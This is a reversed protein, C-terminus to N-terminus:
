AAAPETKSRAPMSGFGRKRLLARYRRESWSKLSLVSAGDQSQLRWPVRQREPNSAAESLFMPGRRFVQRLVSVLEQRLEAEFVMSNAAACGQLPSSAQPTLPFLEARANCAILRMAQSMPASGGYRVLVAALSWVGLPHRRLLQIRQREIDECADLIAQETCGSLRAHLSLFSALTRWAFAHLLDPVEQKDIEVACRQGSWASGDVFADAGHWWAVHALVPAEQHLRRHLFNATGQGARATSSLSLMTAAMVNRLTSAPALAYGPVGLWTGCRACGFPVKRASEFDVAIHRGCVQCTDVLPEDHVPCRSLALHQFCAAHYRHGTCLPCHRLRHRATVVPDFRQVFCAARKAELSLGSLEQWWPAEEDANFVSRTVGSQALVGTAESRTLGNRRALESWLSWASAQPLVWDPSWVCQPRVRHDVGMVM